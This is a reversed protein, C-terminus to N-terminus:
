MPLILSPATRPLFTPPVPLPPPPVRKLNSEGAAVVIKHGVASSGTFAVKKIGMHRAILDGTPNGYGNIINVVGPPFGAERILHARGRAHPPRLDSACACLQHVRVAPHSPAPCPLATPQRPARTGDSHSPHSGGRASNSQPTPCMMLGSLPTKESLKMVITCGMALAPGLKWAQACTQAALHSRSPPALPPHSPTLADSLM